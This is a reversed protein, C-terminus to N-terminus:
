MPPLAEEKLRNIADDLALIEQSKGGLRRIAVTRNECERAGIVLIVPTKAQSHERIKYNIKENRIDKGFRLGKVRCAALVEDAYKDADNTITAIVGQVPALWLPFRGSYQEILIGIWREMSGLIARHLM